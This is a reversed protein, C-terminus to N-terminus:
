DSVSAHVQVEKECCRKVFCITKGNKQRNCESYVCCVCVCVTTRNKLVVSGEQIDEWKGVGKAEVGERLAQEQIRM